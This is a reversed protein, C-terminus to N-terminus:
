RAYDINSLVYYDIAYIDLSVYVFMLPFFLIYGLNSLWSLYGYM